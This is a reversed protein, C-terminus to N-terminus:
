SCLSTVSCSIYICFLKRSISIQLSNTTPVCTHSRINTIFNSHCPNRRRINLNFYESLLIVICDRTFGCLLHFDSLVGQNRDGFGVVFVVFCSQLSSNSYIIRGLFHRIKPKRPKNKFHFLINPLYLNFLM